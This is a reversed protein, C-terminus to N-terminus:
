VLLGKLKVVAWGNLTATALCALAPLWGGVSLYAAGIAYLLVGSVANLILFFRAMM